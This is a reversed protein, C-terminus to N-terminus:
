ITINQGLGKKYLNSLNQVYKMVVHVEVKTIKNRRIPTSQNQM